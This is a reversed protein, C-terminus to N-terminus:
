GGSGGSPSASPAHVDQSAADRPDIEIVLRDENTALQEVAHATERIDRNQLVDDEALSGAGEGFGDHQRQRRVGIGPAEQVVADPAAAGM